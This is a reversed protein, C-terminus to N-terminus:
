IVIDFIFPALPASRDFLPSNIYVEWGVLLFIGTWTGAELAKLASVEGEDDVLFPIKALPNEDGEEEVKRELAAAVRADRKIRKRGAEQDKALVALDPLADEGPEDFEFSRELSRDRILQDVSRAPTGTSGMMNTTIDGLPDSSPKSTAKPAEEEELDFDPLDDTSAPPADSSSSSIKRRRKKASLPSPRYPLPATASKSGAVGKVRSPATFASSGQSELLVFLLLLLPLKSLM